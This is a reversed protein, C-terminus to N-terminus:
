FITMTFSIPFGGKIRNHNFIKTELTELRRDLQNYFRQEESSLSRMTVDLDQNPTGASCSMMNSNIKQPVAGM